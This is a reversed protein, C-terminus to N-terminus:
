YSDAHEMGELHGFMENACKACVMFEEYGDRHRFDPKYEMKESGGRSWWQVRMLAFGVTDIDIEKGCKDCFYRKM